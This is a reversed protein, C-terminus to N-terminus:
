APPRQGRLCNLTYSGAQVALRDGRLTVPYRAPSGLAGMATITLLLFPDKGGYGNATVAAQSTTFADGAASYTGSYAHSGDSATFQGGPSLQLYAQVRAPIATVKGDHSISGVTWTYGTYGPAASACAALAILSLLLWTSAALQRLAKGTM